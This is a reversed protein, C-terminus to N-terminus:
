RSTTIEEIHARHEELTPLTAQAFARLDADGGGEAFASFLGVAEAHARVQMTKYLNDFETGQAEELLGIMAAHESTPEAPVPIDGAAAKLGAAAKEHDAIMRTAFDRLAPDTAKEEAMRSSRIEFDNAGAAMQVFTPPDMEPEQAPAALPFLALLALALRKM